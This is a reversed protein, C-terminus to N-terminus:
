IQGNKEAEKKAKRYEIVAYQERTLPDKWGFSGDLYGRILGESVAWAKADDAESRNSIYALGAAKCLGRCIAEGIESVNEIIWQANEANDHFEAEIYICKATTDRIETFGATRVGYKEDAETIAAIEDYVAQAYKQREDEFKSIFVVCGSGGGANTHIPVHLDAGWNNSAKVAAGISMGDEACKVEFGCRELAAKCHTAIRGCQEKETTNGAAYINYNQQSPSLYIKMTDETMFNGRRGEPENSTSKYAETCNCKRRSM